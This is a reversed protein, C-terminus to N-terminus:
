GEFFTFDMFVFMKTLVPDFCKYGKQNAPYGVFIYKHAKPDLKRRRPDHNYVFAISGFNKLLISTVLRSTPFYGNFFM